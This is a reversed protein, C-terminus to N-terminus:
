NTRSRSLDGMLQGKLGTLGARRSCQQMAACSFPGVGLAAAATVSGPSPKRWQGITYQAAGWRGLSRPAVALASEGLWTHKQVTM